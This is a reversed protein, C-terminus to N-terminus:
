CEKLDESSLFVACDSAYARNCLYFMELLYVDVPQVVSLVRSNGLDQKFLNRGAM